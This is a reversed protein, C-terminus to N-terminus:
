LPSSFGQRDQGVQMSRSSANRILSLRSGSLRATIYVEIRKTQLIRSNESLHYECTPDPLIAREM